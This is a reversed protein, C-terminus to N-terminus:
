LQYTVNYDKKSFEEYKSFILKKCAADPEAQIGKLHKKCYNHQNLQLLTEQNEVLTTSSKMLKNFVPKPIISTPLHGDYLTKTCIKFTKVLVANTFLSCIGFSSLISDNYNVELQQIM